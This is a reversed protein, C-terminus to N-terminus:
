WGEEILMYRVYDKVDVDMREAEKVLHNILSVDNPETVQLVGGTIWLDITEPDGAVLGGHYRILNISKGELYSMMKGELNSRKGGPNLM